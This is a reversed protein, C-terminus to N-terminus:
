RNAALAMLDQPPPATLTPTGDAFHLTHAHLAHRWFRTCPSPAYRAEGLLRHGIHDLHLRIQHTRGTHLRVDLLTADHGRRLTRFSTLARQGDPTVGRRKLDKLWGLPANVRQHPPDPHGHCVALYHKRGKRMRETWLPVLSKRRVFLNLGTTDADLQHLAWVMRGTHQILRHQLCAADDLDRGATPWRAPKNVAILGEDDVLIAARLDFDPLAPTKM